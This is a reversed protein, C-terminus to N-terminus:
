FKVYHKVSLGLHKFFIFSTYRHLYVVIFIVKLLFLFFPINITTNRLSVNSCLFKMGISKIFNMFCKWYGFYTQLGCNYIVM